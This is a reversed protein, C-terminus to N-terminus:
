LSTSLTRFNRCRHVCTGVSRTAAINHILNTRVIAITCHRCTGTTDVSIVITRVSGSPMLYREPIVCNGSLTADVSELSSGIGNLLFGLTEGVRLVSPSINLNMQNAEAVISLNTANGAIAVVGCVLCEGAHGMSINSWKM